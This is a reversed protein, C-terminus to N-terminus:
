NRPRALWLVVASVCLLFGCVAWVAFITDVNTPQGHTFLWVFILVVAIGSRGLFSHLSGYTARYPSEVRRQIYIDVLPEFINRGIEHLIVAGVSLAVISTGAIAALGVGSMVLAIAFWAVEGGHPIKSRRILFGGFSYALNMVIWMRAAGEAGYTMHSYPSWFHNYPVVLGFCMSAAVVWRLPTSKSLAKLSMRFAEFESVRVPPEGSGDMYKSVYFFLAAWLLAEGAFCWRAHAVGIWSGLVGASLCGTMRIMASMGTTRKYTEDPENRHLLADKLWAQQAGSLFAFAVGDAIECILAGWFGTVCAYGAMSIAGCLLGMRISWARSRGDALMGTPIEALVISGFFAANVISVDALTLGYSLLMPAYVVAPLCGAFGSVFAIVYYIRTPHM